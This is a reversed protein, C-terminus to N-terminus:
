DRNDSAPPAAPKATRPKRTTAPKRRAVVGKCINLLMEASEIPASEFFEVVQSAPDKRKM